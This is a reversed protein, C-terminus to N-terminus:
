LKINVNPLVFYFQLYQPKHVALLLTVFNNWLPLGHGIINQYLIIIKQLVSEIADDMLRQAKQEM